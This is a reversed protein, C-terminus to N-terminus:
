LLGFCSLFLDIIRMWKVKKTTVLLYSCTGIREIKIRNMFPSYSQNEFLFLSLFFFLFKNEKKFTVFAFWSFHFMIHHLLFSPLWCPGLLSGFEPNYLFYLGGGNSAVWYLYSYSVFIDTMLFFTLMLGKAALAILCIRAVMQWACVCMCMHLMVHVCVIMQVCAM